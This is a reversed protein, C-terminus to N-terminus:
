DRAENGVTNRQYVKLYREDRRWEDSSKREKRNRFIGWSKTTTATKSAIEAQVTHM